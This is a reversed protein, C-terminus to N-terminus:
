SRPGPGAARSATFRAKLYEGMDLTGSLNEGAVTGTFTFYLADGAQSEDLASTFRVSAGYVSGTLPRAVFEGRHSGELRDGQQRLFISHRSKSAAYEIDVQWEGTLDAAPAAAQPENKPRPSSLIAHLRDAIIREEGPSLMYPTVSIGTQGERSRAFTAIRPSGDLLQRMVEEGTFGLRAADWRVILSPTKNSLGKPQEVSTTVGPLTGVRQAVHDLWSTWRKLEAAHDRKMWMEVAMLMGVAEEKGVKLGRSFGHHPASHVWAAKVLDKRGLLLGATQPGRLCKGGSYGVLDAGAELHVNPVTLVEAAADVLVPVGRAKAAAAVVRTPLVSEDAEPGALIYAMATRPGFAAELEAVTSVQIVRVGVARLAADYVNRSHSPIIVEDKPFGSLDPIRVHLDPNGGAVCAATAHTLAAACGSAVMGWEAKTLEALRAGIAEALEDLHIYHQAAAEMAARVEPLMISGSIITYTGRANILPRAGISAYVDPGARLGTTAPAATTASAALTALESGAMPEAAVFKDRLVAPLALLSGRQLLQRRSVSM